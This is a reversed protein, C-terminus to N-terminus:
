IETVQNCPLLHPIPSKLRINWELGVNKHVLCPSLASIVRPFGVTKMIFTTLNQDESSHSACLRKVNPEDRLFSTELVGGM